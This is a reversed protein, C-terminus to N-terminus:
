MVARLAAAQSAVAFSSVACIVAFADRQRDVDGGHGADLHQGGLDGLAFRLEVDQDVIGAGGPARSKSSNGSLPQSLTISRLTLVGNKRVLASCAGSRAAALASCGALTILMAEISPM